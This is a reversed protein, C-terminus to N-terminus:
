NVLQKLASDQAIDRKSSQEAQDSLSSIQKVLSAELKSIRKDTTKRMQRISGEWTGLEDQEDDNPTVVFLFRDNKDVGRHGMLNDIKRINASLDGLLELKTKTSNLDRNEIVREFTDGMIAILMNLMTVETFLTAFFFM